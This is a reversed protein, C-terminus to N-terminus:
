SNMFIQKYKNVIIDKDYITTSKGIIKIKRCLVKKLSVANQNSYFYANKSVVERNALFDNCIIRSSYSLSDLLTPHTGGSQKTEIYAYSWKMLTLYEDRPIFGTSVARSDQSLQKKIKILYDTQYNDSGVVVFKKKLNTSSFAHFAIELHNDPVIRGVWIFYKGKKLNYKKLVKSNDRWKYARNMYPIFITKKRFYRMYYRKSYLSDTIVIDATKTSLYACLFLYIKGIYGWKERGWDLGDVNIITKIGFLKTILLFPANGVSLFFVIDPRLFFSAHISSFLSHFLTELKYLYVTPIFIRTVSNSRTSHNTYRARCYVFYRFGKLNNTLDEVFSEFGSYVVPIGRIGIFAITKM